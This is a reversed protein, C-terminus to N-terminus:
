VLSGLGNPNVDGITGGLWLEETGFLKRQLVAGQCKKM